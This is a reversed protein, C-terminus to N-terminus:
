AILQGRADYNGYEYRWLQALLRCPDGTYGKTKEAIFDDLRAILDSVSTYHEILFCHRKNEIQKISMPTCLHIQFLCGGKDTGVNATAWVECDLPNDPHWELHEPTDFDLGIVKIENTVRQPQWDSSPTDQMGDM